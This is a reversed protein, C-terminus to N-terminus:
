SWCTLAALASKYSVGVLWWGTSPIMRNAAWQQSFTGSSPCRRPLTAVPGVVFCSFGSVRWAGFLLSDVLTAVLCSISAKWTVGDTLFSKVLRLLRLKNRAIYNNCDAAIIRTLTAVLGDSLQWHLKLEILVETLLGGCSWNCVLFRRLLSSINTWRAESGRKWSRGIHVIAVVGYAKEVAEEHSACCPTGVRLGRKQEASGEVVCCHHVLRASGPRAVTCYRDLDLKLKTPIYSQNAKSWKLLAFSGDGGHLTALLEQGDRAFEEPCPQRVVDLRARVQNKLEAGYADVLRSNKLWCPLDCLGSSLSRLM